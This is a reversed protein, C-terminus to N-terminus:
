KDPIDVQMLPLTVLAPSVAGARDATLEPFVFDFRFDSDTRKFKVKAVLDAPPKLGDMKAELSKGDPALKLPVANAGKGITGTISKISDTSLPKRFDDYVYLRFLGEEPLTGELHHWNDSAMFFMGGHQPNHNGHARPTHRAIMASGDGCKGPNVQNI